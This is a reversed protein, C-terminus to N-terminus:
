RAPKATGVTLCAAITAWAEAETLPKGIDALTAFEGGQLWTHWAAVTVPNVLAAKGMAIFQTADFVVAPLTEAQRASPLNCNVGNLGGFNETIFTQM